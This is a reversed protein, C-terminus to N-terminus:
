SRALRAALRRGLEAERERFRRQIELSREDAEEDDVPEEAGDPGVRYQVARLERDRRAELADLEDWADALLEDSLQAPQLENRALFHAFAIDVARERDPLAAFRQELEPRLRDWTSARRSGSRPAPAPAALGRALEAAIARARADAAEPVSAPRTPAPAPGSELAVARASGAPVLAIWAAFATM